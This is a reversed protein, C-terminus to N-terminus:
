KEEELVRSSLDSLQNELFQRVTFPMDHKSLYDALILGTERNALHAVVRQCEEQRIKSLLFSIGEILEKRATELVYGPEVYTGDNGVPFVKKVLDKATEWSETQPEKSLERLCYFCTHAFKEGHPCTEDMLANSRELDENWDDKATHDPQQFDIPEEM